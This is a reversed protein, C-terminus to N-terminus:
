AAYEIKYNRNNKISNDTGHVIQLNLPEHKGGKSLPVIHDLHVDFGYRRMESVKWHLWRIYQKDTKSLIKLSSKVIQKRAVKRMKTNARGKKTKLYKLNNINAKGRNVNKCTNKSHCKKCQCSRGDRSNKNFKFQDLLKFENCISCKKKEPLQYETYAYDPFKNSKIRQKITAHDVGITKAALRTSNYYIGNILVPNSLFM